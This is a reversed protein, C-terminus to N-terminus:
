EKGQVGSKEIQPTQACIKERYVWKAKFDPNKMSYRPRPCLSKECLGRWPIETGAMAAIGNADADKLARDPTGNADADTAGQGSHKQAEPFVNDKGFHKQPGPFVVNKRSWM